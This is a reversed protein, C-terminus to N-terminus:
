YLFEQLAPYDYSHLQLEVADQPAAAIQFALAFQAFDGDEEGFSLEDAIGGIKHTLYWYKNMNMM